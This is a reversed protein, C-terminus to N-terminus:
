RSFASGEILIDFWIDMQYIVQRHHLILNAKYKRCKPWLNALSLTPLNFLSHAIKTDYFKIIEAEREILKIKQM